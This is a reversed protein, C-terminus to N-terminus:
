YVKTDVDILSFNTYLIHLITEDTLVTDRVMFVDAM